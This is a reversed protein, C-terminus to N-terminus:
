TKKRGTRKDATAATEPAPKMAKKAKASKSVPEEKDEKVGTKRKKVPPKQKNQSDKSAGAPKSIPGEKVEEAGTKRKKAGPKQGSETDKPAVM